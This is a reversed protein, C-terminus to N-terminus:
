GNWECTKQGAWGTMDIGDKKLWPDLPELWGSDAFMQFEFSALHVIQPPQNAAFLTTMTDAYSSREAKTFEIKVGPHQKEFEAIASHWWEGTGADDTQWSIFKLVTDAMAPAFGGMTMLAATAAGLALRSITKNM